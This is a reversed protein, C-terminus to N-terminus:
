SHKDGFELKQIWLVLERNIIFLLQCLYPFIFVVPFSLFHLLKLGHRTSGLETDIPYYTLTSGPSVKTEAGIPWM